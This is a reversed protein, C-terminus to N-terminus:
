APTHANLWSIFTGEPEISVSKMAVIWNWKQCDQRNRIKVWDKATTIIPVDAPVNKLFGLSDYKAHDAFLRSAKISIGVERLDELFRDPRGLACVVEVPCKALEDIEVTSSRFPDFFTLPSSALHFGDSPVVLDALRRNGRPERYPGAPLCWHNKSNPEDILISILKKLPLHQFGDDLLLVSNPYFDYAIEAAFVRRRGVVLPVQPLLWRLMSAEDGWLNPDLEGDPALQAEESAPSGYGSCSIVVERGLNRFIDALYITLPSKGSGGVTLNGVCITRPHPESAKKIGLDYMARYTQWGMAYLFSAPLAAIRLSQATLDTGFWLRRDTIM